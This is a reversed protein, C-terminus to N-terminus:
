TKAPIFWRRSQQTRILLYSVFFMVSELIYFILSLSFGFDILDWVALAVIVIGVLLLSWEISRRRFLDWVMWLVVLAWVFNGGAILPESFGVGEFEKGEFFVATLTAALSIMLAVVIFKVTLPM